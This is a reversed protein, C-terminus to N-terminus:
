FLREDVYVVDGTVIMTNLSPSIEQTKQDTAKRHIRIRRLSGRETVGGSISLVRMVNLDPEMPYAGPRRVEGHIYFMKQAAVFVVDDNKLEVDLEGRAADPLQDLRIPIEQRDSGGSKASNRRLLSVTRDARLTLGGATALVELVTLKGVIPFRGPRAVEGLVSVMQSRVQRVQVSVQPNRLYEGDKLRQAILKEIAPPALGGVKLTGILSLTVQENENVTVEASMDAQGFVTIFIQDGVGILITEQALVPQGSAAGTPVGGLDVPGDSLPTRAVFRPEAVEVLPSNNANGIDVEATVGPTLGGVNLPKPNSSNWDTELPLDVVRAHVSAQTLPTAVPQAVVPCLTSGSFLVLLEVGFVKRWSSWM